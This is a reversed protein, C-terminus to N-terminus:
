ELIYYIWNTNVCHLQLLNGFLILSDRQAVNRSRESMNVDNLARVIGVVADEILEVFHYVKSRGKESKQNFSKIGEGKREFTRGKHLLVKKSITLVFTFNAYWRNNWVTFGMNTDVSHIIFFLHLLMGSFRALLSSRTRAWSILKKWLSDIFIATNLIICEYKLQDVRGYSVTWLFSRWETFRCSYVLFSVLAFHFDMWSTYFTFM